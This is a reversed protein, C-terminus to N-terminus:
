KGPFLNKIGMEALNNLIITDMGKISDKIGSYEILHPNALWSSFQHSM